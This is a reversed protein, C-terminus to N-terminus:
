EEVDKRMYFHTVKSYRNALRMLEKKCQGETEYEALIASRGDGFDCCIQPKNSDISNDIYIQGANELVVLTKEDQSVIIM